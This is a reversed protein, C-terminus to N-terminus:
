KLYTWGVIELLETLCEDDGQKEFLTKKKKIGKIYKLNSLKDTIKNKM